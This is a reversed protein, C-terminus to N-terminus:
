KGATYLFGYKVREGKEYEPLYNEEFERIMEESDSFGRLMARVEDANNENILFPNYLRLITGQNDNKKLMAVFVSACNWLAGKHVKADQSKTAFYKRWQFDSDSNISPIRGFKVMLVLCFKAITLLVM